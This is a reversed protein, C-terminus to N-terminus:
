FKYILATGFLSQFDSGFDSKVLPSNRADSMLQWFSGVLMLSLHDKLKYEGFLIINSNSMGSVPRFAPLNAVSALSQQETIGFKRQMAEQSSFRASLVVLWSIKEGRYLGQMISLTLAEGANDGLGSKGEARVEFPGRKYKLFAGLEVRGGNDGLGKLMPNDSEKRGFSYHAMPGVSFGEKKYLAYIVKPGFIRLRGKYKLDFIPRHKFELNAGGFFEPGFGAAWGANVRLDAKPKAHPYTTDSDALASFSFVHFFILGTLFLKM